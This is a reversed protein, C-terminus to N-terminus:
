PNSDGAEVHQCDRAAGERGGLLMHFFFVALVMIIVLNIISLTSGIIRQRFSNEASKSWCEDQQLLSLLVFFSVLCPRDAIPVRCFRQFM